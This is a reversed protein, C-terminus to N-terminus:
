PISRRCTPIIPRYRTPLSTQNPYLPRNPAIQPSSDNQSNEITFPINKQGVFAPQKNSLQDRWYYLTSYPIGTLQRVTPVNNNHLQLLDLAEQKQEPPYRKPM